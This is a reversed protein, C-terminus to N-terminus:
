DYYGNDSKILSDFQEADHGFWIQANNETALKRVKEVAKVYGLSDYTIGPLRVPPGYNVKTNIADSAIIINGTNPLSVTLGLMGFVHGSGLNIIKIGPLLEVMNCDNEILEWHLGAKLWAEIDKRIYAGMDRNLAYKKLTQEFEDNHVIITSDTFMELCGAHDEHLHSLVVYKIDKPTYGLRKLTNPLRQEETCYHPTALRQEEPWRDVMSDPHCATDFLVPGASDEILVTYVPARAWVAKPNRNISSAPFPMAVLFGYDNENYGNNMVYLKM